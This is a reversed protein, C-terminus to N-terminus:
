RSFSLNPEEFEAVNNAYIAFILTFLISFIVMIETFYIVAKKVGLAALEPYREFKTISYWIKEFFNLNLFKEKRTENKEVIYVGLM